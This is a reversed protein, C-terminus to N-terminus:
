AEEQDDSALRSSIRHLNFLFLSFLFTFPPSKLLFFTLRIKLSFAPPIPPLSELNFSRSLSDTRFRPHSLLSFPPFLLFLFENQSSKTLYDRKAPKLSWEQWHRRPITSFLLKMSTSPSKAFGGLRATQQPSVEPNIPSIISNKVCVVTMVNTINSYYAHFSKPHNNPKQKINVFANM